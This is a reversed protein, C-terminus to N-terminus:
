IKKIQVFWILYGTLFGFFFQIDLVVFILYRCILPYNIISWYCIDGFVEDELMLEVHSHSYYANLSSVPLKKKKKKAIGVFGFADM